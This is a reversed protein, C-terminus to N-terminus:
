VDDDDDFFSLDDDTLDEDVKKSAKGKPAVEKAAAKGPAKKSSKPAPKEDEDEDDDVDDADDDDEDEDEDKKSAKKPPEKKSPKPAVKSKKAPPAEDEDEDDSELDDDDEDEDEDDEEVKKKSSKVPAVKSSKTSKKPPADDDEDEDDDEVEEKKAKKTVPKGDKGWAEPIDDDDFSVAGSKVAKKASKKAPADEDEDEDDDDPPPPAKKSKSKISPTSDGEDLEWGMVGYFLVKLEDYSKFLKEDKFPQLPYLQEFVEELLGDDGDYLASPAEFESQDYQPFDDKQYTKVQFNAGSWMHFANFSVARASQPKMKDQIKKFVTVGYDYLFVKGENEPDGKDEIVLINSIYRTKVSFQKAAEKDGSNWLKSWYENVPDKQKLTQLSLEDYTGGPGDFRYRMIKVLPAKEPPPAPLFRIISFSKKKADMAPYWIRDDRKFSVTEEDMITAADELTQAKFSKKFDKFSM